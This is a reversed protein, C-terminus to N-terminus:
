QKFAKPTMAKLAIRSAVKNMETIKQMAEESAKKLEDLDEPEVVTEYMAQFSTEFFKSAKAWNNWIDMM